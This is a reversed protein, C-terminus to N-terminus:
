SSNNIIAGRGQARMVPAAHKTGFVVSGLLLDMADHFNEPTVTEIEGRTPGGANNFLCDLRGFGEVTAEVARQIDAERKVDTQVFRAAPGLAEVMAQGKEANRGAIMVKAGEAIFREVTTEGIGSTGGTILAVKGELRGTMPAG